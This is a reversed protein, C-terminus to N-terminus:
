AIVSYGISFILIRQPLRNRKYSFGFLNYLTSKISYLIATFAESFRPKSFSSKCFLYCLLGSKHGTNHSQSPSVQTQVRRCPEELLQHGRPVGHETQKRWILRINTYGSFTLVELDSVIPSQIIATHYM